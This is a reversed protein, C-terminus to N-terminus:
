PPSLPMMLPVRFDVLAVACAVSDVEVFDVQCDTGTMESMLHWSEWCGVGEGPHLCNVVLDFKLESDLVPEAGAVFGQLVSAFDEVPVVGVASNGPGSPCRGKGPHM